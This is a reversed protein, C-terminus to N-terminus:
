QRRQYVIQGRVITVDARGVLQRGTFPTNRTQSFIESPNVVGPTKPNM